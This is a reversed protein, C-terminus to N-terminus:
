LSSRIIEHAPKGPSFGYKKKFAAYFHSLGKFGVKIYIDGAKDGEYLKDYAAELRWEILYKRPPLNSIKKFDRKFTSLSRNTAVAIENISLYDRMYNDILYEMIDKKELDPFDFLYRYFLTDTRLLIRITEQAKLNTIERTPPIHHIDFYPILSLFFNTSDPQSGIRVIGRNYSVMNCPTIFVDKEHVHNEYFERIFWRKFTHTIARFPEGDSPRMLLKVRRNCPIFLCEDKRIVKQNDIEIQVLEGSHVYVLLHERIMRTCKTDKRCLFSSFTDHFKLENKTKM